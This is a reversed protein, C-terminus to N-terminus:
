RGGDEVFESNREGCRQCKEVVLETEPTIQERRFEQFDHELCNRRPVVQGGDALINPPDPSFADSRGAEICEICHVDFTDSDPAVRMGGRHGLEDGCIACYNLRAIESSGCRACAGEHDREFKNSLGFFDGEQGCGLCRLAPRDTTQPKGASRDTSNQHPSAEERAPGRLAGTPKATM